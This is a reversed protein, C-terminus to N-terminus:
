ASDFGGQAVDFNLDGKKTWAEKNMFLLSKKTEKIIEIEEETIDVHTKAWALAKTLLELTISPYYNVVDFVIFVLKKKNQLKKFWDIVAYVNKWQNLKTKRRITELIKTLINKSVKGLEAKTPNLLRCKPNNRFGDKHDKITIFCEREM